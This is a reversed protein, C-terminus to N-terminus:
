KLGIERVIYYLMVACVIMIIFAITVIIDDKKM